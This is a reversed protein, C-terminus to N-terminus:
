GLTKQRPERRQSRAGCYPRNTILQTVESDPHVGRSEGAEPRIYILGHSFARKQRGTTDEEFHLEIKTVISTLLERSDEPKAQELAERLRKLAEIARDVETGGGVEQELGSLRTKGM